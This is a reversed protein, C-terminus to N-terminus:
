GPRTERVTRRGPVVGELSGSIAYMGREAPPGPLKSRLTGAM